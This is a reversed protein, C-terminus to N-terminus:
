EKVLVVFSDQAPWGGATLQFALESSTASAPLLFSVQMVGAVMGPVSGATTSNPQAGTVQV